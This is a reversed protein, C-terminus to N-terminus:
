EFSATQRPSDDEVILTGNMLPHLKETSCQTSCYFTFKGARSARFKVTKPAGVMVGNIFADEDYSSVAFGHGVGLGNDTPEFTVEVVQGKKVRIVDPVYKWARESLQIRVDPEGLTERELFNQSNRVIATPAAPRAFSEVYYALKWADEEAITGHFGLMPTGSFGTLISRAIDRTSYGSKFTAPRSFDRPKIRSGSDDVLNIASPGDGRGSEGHCTVCALRTFLERGDALAAENRKAPTAPNIVVGGSENTSSFRPSLTKLYEVVAWRDDESLIHKWPPMPTGPMGLSVSRFLDVDTPLQGMPTTRLRYNGTTFDRPKPLLFAAADGKGDGDTGHCAACNQTYVNKGHEVFAATVEPKAPVPLESFTPRASPVPARPATAHTGPADTAARGCGALVAIGTM